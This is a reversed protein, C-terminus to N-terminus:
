VTFLNSNLEFLKDVSAQSIYNDAVGDLVHGLSREIMAYNCGNNNLVSAYSHRAFGMSVDDRIGLKTAVIRAVRSCYTNLIMVRKNIAVDNTIDVGELLNGFVLGNREEKDGITDIVTRLKDIIPVRVYIGSTNKTKQRTFGLMKKDSGYYEDDYKLRVLDAMNCGNCLYSALFVGIWKKQGRPKKGISMWYMWMKDMDERRLYKNQRTRPKALKVKDLEYPKSRTLKIDGSTLGLYQGYNTVAQLMAFYSRITSPSKHEDTLKKHLDVAWAPTIDRVYVMGYNKQIYHLLTRYNMETGNRGELKLSVCKEILLENITKANDRRPKSIKKDAKKAKTETKKASKQGRIPVKTKKM